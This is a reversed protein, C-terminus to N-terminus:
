RDALPRGPRAEAPAPRALRGPLVVLDPRVVPVPLAPRVALDLPVVPALRDALVLQAAPVAPAPRVELGQRVARAM